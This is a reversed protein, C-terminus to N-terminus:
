ESEHKAALRSVPLRFGFTSGKGEESLFLVEGGHGTIVKKALYLGVGTGDPRQRQANGARFFKSFLRHQEAKPVGIGSDIVRLEVMNDVCALMVTITKKSDLSYFLANDIYNMVVQRLKGADLLLLPFEGSVHFVLKMNRKAAIHQLSGVEDRVLQVIDTPSKEIMFRGTQLRSVNLFDHILHVMRESSVFAESLLQRQTGTIEGADGDLVMSLYGKVSTLPTRLQHSAMSLFEDKIADVRRLQANSLQLEHTADAIRQQLQANLDKVEQVALAHRIAITFEGALGELLRLHHETYNGKFCPGLLLYGFVTNKRRLPIVVGIGQRELMHQLSSHKETLLKTIVMESDQVNMYTDLMAVASPTLLVHDPTGSSVYRSSDGYRVFFFVQSVGLTDGVVGSVKRLLSRVDTTNALIDSIRRYFDDTSYGTRFFIREAPTGFFGRRTVVYASLTGLVLGIISASLIAM